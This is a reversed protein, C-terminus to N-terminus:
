FFESQLLVKQGPNLYIRQEEGRCRGKQNLYNWESSKIKEKWWPPKSQNEDYEDLFNSVWRREEWSAFMDRHEPRVQILVKKNKSLDFTQQCDSLQLLWLTKFPKGRSSITNPWIILSKRFVLFRGWYDFIYEPCDSESSNQLIKCGAERGGKPTGGHWRKKSVLTGPATELIHLAKWSFEASSIPRFFRLFSSRLLSWQKWWGPDSAVACGLTFCLINSM